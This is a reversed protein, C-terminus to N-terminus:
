KNSKIENIRKNKIVLKINKANKVNLNITFNEKEEVFKILSEINMIKKKNIKSIYPISYKKENINILPLHFNNINDLIDDSLNSKNIDILVLIMETESRYPKEIYYESVSTGIIIGMNLYNNIIDESLEAFIFGDLEYINRNFSLPIYKMSHLPRALINIKKEKYDNKKVMLRMIKLNITEGCMYNLSIYTRFDIWGGFNSDYVCMENNIELGNLEFIIDGKKINLCQNPLKYRYQNYNIDYTEDVIIGNIPDTSRDDKNFCCSTFNGVLTCIGNFENTDRIETLFRHIVYSPIIYILSNLILTVMGIVKNNSMLLSGSIGNLESVDDYQKDLMVTIIPIDPLNLSTIKDKNSNFIEKFKCKLKIEEVKKTKCYKNIDISKIYLNKDIKKSLILDDLSYCNINKALGINLLGLELEDSINDIGCEFKNRANYINFKYGNNISHFCTLVLKRNNINFINGVSYKIM